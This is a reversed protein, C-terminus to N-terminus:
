GEALKTERLCKVERAPPRAPCWTDSPDVDRPATRPPLEFGPRLEFCVLLSPLVSVTGGAVVAAETATLVRSWVVVESVLGQLHKRPQTSADAMFFLRATVAERSQLLVHTWQRTPLCSWRVPACSVGDVYLSTWLQGADAATYVSSFQRWLFSTGSPHAAAVLVNEGVGPTYKLWLSSPSVYM